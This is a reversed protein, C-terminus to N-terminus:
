AAKLIFQVTMLVCVNFMINIKNGDKDPKTQRTRRSRGPSSEGQGGSEMPESAPLADIGMLLKRLKNEYV